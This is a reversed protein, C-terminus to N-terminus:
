GKLPPVDEQDSYSNMLELINGEPDNFFCIRLNPALHGADRIEGMEFGADALETVKADLDEVLFALHRFGIAQEGGRAEAPAESTFLELCTEGSRLMVFEDPEGHKFVRTRKFGLYQTYFREQAKIDHCFFAIHQIPM